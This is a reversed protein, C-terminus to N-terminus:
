SINSNNGNNNNNAISHQILYEHDWIEALAELNAVSSSLDGWLKFFLPLYLEALSVSIYSLPGSEM